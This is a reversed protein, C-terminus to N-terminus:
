DPDASLTSLAGKAASAQPPLRVRRVQPSATRARPKASRPCRGHGSVWGRGQAAAGSEMATVAPRSSYRPSLVRLKDGRTERGRSVRRFCFLSGSPVAGGDIAGARPGGTHSSPSASATGSQSVRGCGSGSYRNSWCTCHYGQRLEAPLAYPGTRGSSEVRGCGSRGWASPDGPRPNREASGSLGQAFARAQMRGHQNRRAGDVRRATPNGIRKDGIGPLVSEENDRSPRRRSRPPEPVISM